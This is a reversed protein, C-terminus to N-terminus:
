DQGDQSIRNIRDLEEKNEGTYGTNGTTKNGTGHKPADLRQARYIGQHGSVLYSLFCAAFLPLALGGGFLEIGMLTCALPTNAAGAFVAVFGLAAYPATPQGALHAFANGLTAGIGFLPTVEGGKFGAGLTVATFLIKWAWAVPSVPVTTFARAILPLSLGLYDRTGVIYTLAIIVCGGVLPRLHPIPIKSKAFSGIAHTLVSFIRAALGSLLGLCAIYAWTRADLTPVIAVVYHAHESGWAKCVVDGVVSAAFCGIVGAYRVRGITLVELGFVTGALPTGFVSGFGGAIGAMLLLAYDRPPLRLARHLASAIAGGMQLATGERGASGGCLHTLVTTLLILPLMRFPVSAGDATRDDRNHIHELLLNSGGEVPRGVTHYLVGMLVGALPLLWLLGGDLERLRTAYGLLFLFLASASGAGCGVLAGLSTWKALLLAPASAEAGKSPSPDPAVSTVSMGSRADRLRCM